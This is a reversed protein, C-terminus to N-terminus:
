ADRRPRPLVALLILTTLAIAADVLVVTALVDRLPHRLGIDDIMPGFSSTQAQTVAFAAALVIALAAVVLSVFDAATRRRAPRVCGVAAGASWGIGVGICFAVQGWMTYNPPGPLFLDYVIAAAFGGATAGGFAWGLRPAVGRNATRSM